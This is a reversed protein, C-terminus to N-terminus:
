PAKADARGAFAGPVRPRTPDSAHVPPGAQGFGVCHRWDRVWTVDCAERLGISEQDDIRV